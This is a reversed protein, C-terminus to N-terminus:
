KGLIANRLDKDAPNDGLWIGFLAKKFDLGEIIGRYKKNVNVVTGVGPIYVFTAGNGKKPKGEFYSLFTKIRGDLKKLVKEDRGTSYRFGKSLASMLDREKIGGYVIHFTMSMAKDSNILQHNDKTPHQTYLAIAYIKFFFKKLFGVGNLRLEKEGGTHFTDPFTMGGLSKGQVGVAFTVALVFVVFKKM